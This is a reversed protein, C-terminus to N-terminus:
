FIVLKTFILKSLVKAEFIKTYNPRIFYDIGEMSGPLTLAKILLVILIVYPFIAIFYSAKGSTKIGKLLVFFV